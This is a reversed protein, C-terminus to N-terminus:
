SGGRESRSRALTQQLVDNWDKGERPSDRRFRLHAHLGALRAYQEAFRDGAADGDVAAIVMCGPPLGAFIRDLITLQHASPAGASSLYRQALAECPHLAHYSLADIASEAVVVARDTPLAQSQWFTRKGGTSFRTFGRNKVECGTFTGRDDRHAFLVNEHRDIRWTDAFRPCSLTERCLGRSELYASTPALRAALFAREALRPDSAPPPQAVARWEGTDPPASGLWRRLEKRAEGFSGHRLRHLVFDIITGHDRDDRVSFYIWRGDPTLKAVVKDGTTPHALVHSARTSKPKSREYGYREIAYRLLHVDRKFRDLEADYM